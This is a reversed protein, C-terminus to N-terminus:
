RPVVAQSVFNRSIVAIARAVTGPGPNVQPALGKAMRHFQVNHYALQLYGDAPRYGTRPPGKPLEPELEGALIRAPYDPVFAMPRAIGLVDAAGEAVIREMTERTRVGGTLMLPVDVVDRVKRAYDLFYPNNGALRGRDHVGTMAPEAYNGGSIEILDVGAGALARAVDLSEAEDLGGHQFDKSNLKVAIPVGSGIAARVADVVELLLRRRGAADGGYSDDRTNALPSLFQSLLFGHAAHVQVGDFGNGVALEATRAFRRVLDQIDSGSLQRPRRLNYGPVPERSASPALPWRNLPVTAVRGPHNIQMWMQAGGAHVADAWSKYAAPARDDDLIVNRPEVLGCRDIMVNGTILLGAGGRAWTAYLRTLTDTPRGARDALQESMGAKALRNPLTAGCPLKLNEALITM